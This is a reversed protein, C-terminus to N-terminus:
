SLPECSAFIFFYVGLMDKSYFKYPQLLQDLFNWNYKCFYSKRSFTFNPAIQHFNSIKDIHCMYNHNDAACWM